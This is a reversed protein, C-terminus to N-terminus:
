YMEEPLGHYAITSDNNMVVTVAIQTVIMEKVM